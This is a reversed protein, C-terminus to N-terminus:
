YESYPNNNKGRLQLYDYQGVTMCACGSSNSYTGPCCEPRFPTNAFMLMEGEPLPLEQKPRNLIDRAGQSLSGGSVYSLNPSFWSSTDVPTNDGLRYSSPTSNSYTGGNGFGEKKTHKMNTLKEITKKKDKENTITVKDIVDLVKQTDPSVNTPDIGNEM